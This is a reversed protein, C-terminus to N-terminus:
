RYSAKIRGWTTSQVPTPECRNADCTTGDGQYSGGLTVCTDPTVIVCDGDPLCCAGLIVPAKCGVSLAGILVGCSNGDPLCPSDSRVRYNGEPTAVQCPEPDCFLPDAFITEEDYNIQRADIGSSDVDCCTLSLDGLSHIEDGDGSACNGWIITRDFQLHGDLNWIGGGDNNAMNRAITCETMMLSAGDIRLGGGWYGLNGTIVCRQLVVSCDISAMVYIAGGGQWAGANGAFLCDEFRPCPAAVCIAGGIRAYNSTFSCRRFTPSGTGCLVAGGGDAFGRVISFGEVVSMDSEFGDFLLGRGSDQCDIVTRELGERSRLVLDKGNFNLDRNGVGTYTGAAVSVTDGLSAADIGAQITPYQEPVLLTAGIVQGPWLSLVASVVALWCLAHGCKRLRGVETPDNM